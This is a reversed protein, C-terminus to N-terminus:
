CVEHFDDTQRYCYLGFFPQGIWSQFTTAENVAWFINGSSGIEKDLTLLSSM